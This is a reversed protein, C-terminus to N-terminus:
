PRTFFSVAEVASQEFMGLHVPELFFTFLQACFDLAHARTSDSEGVLRIYRRLCIFQQALARDNNLRTPPATVLLRGYKSSLSLM